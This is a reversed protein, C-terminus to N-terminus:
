GRINRLQITKSVVIRRFGDNPAAIVQDAYQYASTDTHGQEISETRLRLWLRVAIIRTDPDFGPATPDLLPNDANVYRDVADYGATGEADLDIGYQVQLDEVGPIVEEDRISPGSGLTQRRLSPVNGLTPSIPSVYYANAIMTHTVSAPPPAFGPPILDGVFLAGRTRDSQLHLRDAALVTVPDASAHRIVLIDSGPQYNGGAICGAYPANSGNAGEVPRNVDIYWRESCDSGITGLQDPQGRRREINTARNTLGWYSALRLDPEMQNLAFRANEQLRALSENLRYTARSSSYVSVAGILLIAGILLAIMLEILTMGRQKM